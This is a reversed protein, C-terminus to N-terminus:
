KEVNYENQKKVTVIYAMKKSMYDHMVKDKAHFQALSYFSLAEDYNKNLYAIDGLHQNKTYYFNVDQISNLIDTAEKYKKDEIMKTAISIQEINNFLQKADSEKAFIKGSTLFLAMLTIGIIIDRNKKRTITIKM